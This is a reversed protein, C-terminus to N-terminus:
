DTENKNMESFYIETICAFYSRKDDNSLSCEKMIERFEALSEAARQVAAGDSHSGYIFSEESNMVLSLSDDTLFSKDVDLAEALKALVSGKPIREGGLYNALARYTIGVKEAFETKKLGKRKILLDLKQNLQMQTLGKM